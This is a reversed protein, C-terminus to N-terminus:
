RAGGKKSVAPCGDSIWREIEALDWRLLRGLRLPRPMRGSDCLRRIHRPSVGCMAAVTNVDGLRRPSDHDMHFTDTTSTM